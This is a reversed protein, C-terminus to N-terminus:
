AMVVEVWVEKCVEQVVEVMVMASGAVKIGVREMHEELGVEARAM